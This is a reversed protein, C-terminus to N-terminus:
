RRERWTLQGCDYWARFALCFDEDDVSEPDPLHNGLWPRAFISESFAVTVHGRGAGRGLVRYYAVGDVTPASLAAQASATSDFHIEEILFRPSEASDTWGGADIAHSRWWESNEHEPHVPLDSPQHVVDSVPPVYCSGECGPIRATNAFGLILFEAQTVAEAAAYRARQGDAFNATMGQQLIMSTTAVLALLSIAAMLVLGVLLAVGSQNAM